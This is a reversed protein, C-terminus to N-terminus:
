GYLEEDGSAEDQADSPPGIAEGGQRAGDDEPGAPQSLPENAAERLHPNTAFYWPEGPKALPADSGVVDGSEGPEAQGPEGDARVALVIMRQRSGDPMKVKIRLNDGERMLWGSSAWAREATTLQIGHRRLEAELEHPLFAIRDPRKWVGLYRPPPIPNDHSDRREKGVFCTRASSAFAYAAEFATRGYSADTRDILLSEMAKKVNQSADGPLALAEHLLRGALEVLAVNQARRAGVNGDLTSGWRAVAAEYDAKWSPWEGERQIIAQLLMKGAHGHNSYCTQRLREVFRQEACSGFPSGHITLVRAGAGKFKTAAHLANEGASLVVTRWTATRALGSKSGRGRGSGTPLMYVLRALLEDNAEQAEDLAIPLDSSLHATREASVLTTEWTKLLAGPHPDGWLSLAAELATSKGRSTDGWLHVLFSPTQCIRVLPAAASAYLMFAAIPFRGVVEAMTNRWPEFSGAERLAAVFQREGDSDAFFEIEQAGAGSVCQNGLVFRPDDQVWGCHGIAHSVKLMKANAVEFDALYSVLHGATASTVPLGRGALAVISHRNAFVERGDSIRRWSDTVPDRWAVVWREHGDEVRRQVKEILIPVPSAANGPYNTPEKAVGEPSVRWGAPQVAAPTCPADPLTAHIPQERHATKQDAAWRAHFSKSETKYGKLESKLARIDLMPARRKAERLAASLASPPLADLAPLFHRIVGAIAFPDNSMGAKSIDDFFQQIVRAAEEQEAGDSTPAGSSDAQAPETGLEGDVPPGNEERTIANNQDNAM